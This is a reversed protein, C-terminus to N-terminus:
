GALSPSENAEHGTGNGSMCVAAAKRPEVGIAGSWATQRGDVGSRPSRPGKVVWVERGCRGLRRAASSVAAIVVQFSFGFGNMQGGLVDDGLDLAATFGEVLDFGLRVM